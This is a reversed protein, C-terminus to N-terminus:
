CDVVRRRVVDVVVVFELLDYAPKLMGEFVLAAHQLWRLSLGRLRLFIRKLPPRLRNRDM